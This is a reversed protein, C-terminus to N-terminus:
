LTRRHEAQALADREVEEPTPKRVALYIGSGVLPLIVILALWAITTGTPYRRRFLDMLTLVWVVVVLVALAFWIFTMGPDDLV